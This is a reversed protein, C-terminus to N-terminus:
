RGAGGSNVSPNTQCQVRRHSQLVPGSAERWTKSSSGFCPYTAVYFTVGVPRGSDWCVGMDATRHSELRGGRGGRRRRLGPGLCPLLFSSAAGCAQQAGATVALRPAKSRELAHERRHVLLIDLSSSLVRSRPIRRFLIATQVRELCFSELSKTDFNYGLRRIRGVTNPM